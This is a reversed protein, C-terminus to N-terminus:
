QPMVTKCQLAPFKRAVKGRVPNKLCNRIHWETKIHFVLKVKYLHKGEFIIDFGLSERNDIDSQNDNVYSKKNVLHGV